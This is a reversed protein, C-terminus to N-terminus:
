GGTGGFGLACSQTVCFAAPQPIIALPSWQLIHNGNADTHQSIAITKLVMPRNDPLNNAKPDFAIRGSIGQFANKGQVQSLAMLIDAPNPIHSATLAKAQVAADMMLTVADYAYIATASPAIGLGNSTTFDTGFQNFFAPDGVSQAQPNQPSTWESEDALGMVFLLQMAKPYAKVLAATQATDAAYSDGILSPDDAIQNAIIPVRLGQQAELVALQAAEQSNGNFLIAEAGFQEVDTVVQSLPEGAPGIMIDKQPTNALAAREDLSIELNTSITPDTVVAVRNAHLPASLITQVIAGAQYYDPGSLQFFNSVKFGPFGHQKCAAAIAPISPPTPFCDTTGVPVVVPVNNANLSTLANTLNPISNPQAFRSAWSIVGLWHDPNGQKLLNTHYNTLAVAGSTDTGVSAVEILVKTNGPLANTGNLTAQAEYAGRLVNRSTDIDQPGFSVAVDLTVSPVPNGQAAKEEILTDALYIKPEANSPDDSVAQQFATVASGYDGNCLAKAGMEEAVIAAAAPNNTPDVTNHVNAACQGSGDTDGADFTDFIAKGLSFGVGTKALTVQTPDVTQTPIISEHAQTTTHFHAVLAVVVTLAVLLSLFTGLAIPIARNPPTRDLIPELANVADRSPMEGNRARDLDLQMEEPYQYRQSPVQRVAKALIAETPASIAQNLQRAPSFLSANRSAADFGTAGFFLTAGLSFLDSRQDAQGRALDPASYGPIRPPDRYPINLAKALLGLAPCLLTVHQGNPAVVVADPTIAGHVIPPSLHELATLAELLDPGFNQVMRDTLPGARVIYDSLFTGEIYELVLFHRGRESFSGLVGQLSAQRGLKMLAQAMNERAREALAPILDGFTLELLAVREGRRGGDNAIYQTAGLPPRGDPTQMPRYAGQVRFRGNQLMAGALLPGPLSPTRSGGPLRAPPGPPPGNPAVVGENPRRMGPPAPRPTSPMGTEPRGMPPLPWQGSANGAPPGQTGPLSWQGSEGGRRPPDTEWTGARPTSVRRPHPANPRPDDPAAFILGCNPCQRAQPAVPAGCRPCVM